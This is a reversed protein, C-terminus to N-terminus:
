VHSCYQKQDVPTHRRAVTKSEISFPKWHPRGASCSACTIFIVPISLEHIQLALPQAAAHSRDRLLSFQDAQVNRDSRNLWVWTPAEVPVSIKNRSVLGSRSAGRQAIEASLMLALVSASILFITAILFSEDPTSGFAGQGSWVGWAAFASLILTFAATERQSCHLAAWVLPLVAVVGFAGRNVPLELLPSFAVFGVVSTALFAARFVM